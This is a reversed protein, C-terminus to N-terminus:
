ALDGFAADLLLYARGAESSLLAAVLFGERDQEFGRGDHRRLPAPLARGRRAARRGLVPPPGAPPHRGAGNAVCRARGARTTPRSRPPSRTSAPAPCCPRRISAWAPIEGAMKEGLAADGPSASKKERASLLNRWSLGGAQPEAREGGPAPAANRGGAADFVSRFEDDSATPTLRLRPRLGVEEASPENAPAGPKPGAARRAAPQVQRSLPPPARSPAPAPTAAGMRGVAESLMDYNRRVREQFAQDIAATEEATRRASPGCTRSARSSRPGSRTPAPWPRPRCTPPAVASMPWCPRWRPSPGEPPRSAKPCSRPRAPGPRSSWRPRHEILDRAEDM